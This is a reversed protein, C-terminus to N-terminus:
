SLPLANVKYFNKAEPDDKSDGQVGLKKACFKSGIIRSKSNEFYTSQVDRLRLFCILFATPVNESLLLGVLNTRLHNVSSTM